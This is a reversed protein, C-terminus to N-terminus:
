EFIRYTHMYNHMIYPLIFSHFFIGTIPCKTYRYKEICSICNRVSLPVCHTMNRTSLESRLQNVHLLCWPVYIICYRSRPVCSISGWGEELEGHKLLVYNYLEQRRSGLGFICTGKEMRGVRKQM